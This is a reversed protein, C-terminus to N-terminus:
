GAATFEKQIEDLLIHKQFVQRIKDANMNQYVVPERDAIAVTVYPENKGKDYTDAALVQIDDRDVAAAEELLATMVNRAGAAIGSEGMHVTITVKFQHKRPSIEKLKQDKITKLDEVTLKPM